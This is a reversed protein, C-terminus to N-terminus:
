DCLLDNTELVHIFDKHPTKWRALGYGHQLYVYLMM